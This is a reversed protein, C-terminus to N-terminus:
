THPDTIADHTRNKIRDRTKSSSFPSSINTQKKELLLRCVIDLVTEHARLHTYSVALIEDKEFDYMMVMEMKNQTITGTKDLCLYRISGLAEVIDTKKVIIGKQILRWAGLAMFTAFAVPIEEPLVSM